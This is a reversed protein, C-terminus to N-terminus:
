KPPPGYLSARSEIYGFAGRLPWILERLLTGNADVEHVVGSTSYAVITNGNPLRQVDGMIDIQIPPDAAYSWVQYVTKAAPDISVELAVSGDSTGPVGQNGATNNNFILLRDRGLVHIGHEGGIWGEGDLTKGLGNLVWVTAGDRTVKTINDYNLDSFVLTDDEPSYQIDNVHCAIAGGHAAQANVITKVTGDPVREKIDDCENAGYAYFAITDGPLVTLQHSLGTFQSSLDEDVLGDMSVRHVVAKQNPVNVSNLWMFKGDYSMRAGSVDSDLFYWWM